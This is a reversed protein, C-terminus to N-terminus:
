PVIPPHMELNTSGVFAPLIPDRKRGARVGLMVAGGATWFFAIPKQSSESAM